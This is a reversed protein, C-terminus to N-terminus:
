PAGCSSSAPMCTTINCSTAVDVGNGNALVGTGQIAGSCAIGVPTNNEVTVLNLQATGTPPLSNVLIGGWTTAGKQGPGNRTVTSNSIQFAAGDLLIGGGQCSDVVVTDLVLTGGTASIGLSASSSFKIGRVYVLGSTMNFGPSTSSAIVGTQQGIVSMVPHGAGKAYTWSGSAVAGRVVVLSQADTLALGVPDMSCYPSAPTGGGVVFATKCAPMTNQVYIAEADTACHGDIQSMCIGPNGTSGLKAVCQSDSTCATCTHSTTDCIPKTSDGNCDSSALCQVCSGQSCIPTNGGCAACTSVDPGADVGAGGGGGAGSGGTGGAAGHGGTGGGGGVGAVGGEPPFLCRGVGQTDLNCARGGQCDTTSNCPPVCRGDGQVNPDNDCVYGAYGTMSACDSTQNCRGPYFPTTCAALAALVASLVCWRLYRM